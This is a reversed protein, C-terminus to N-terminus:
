CQRPTRDIGIRTLRCNLGREAILEAVLSGIGGALYHAEITYVM